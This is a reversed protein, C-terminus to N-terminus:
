HGYIERPITGNNYSDVYGDMMEISHVVYAETTQPIVPSSWGKKGHHSLIIHLLHDLDEQEIENIDNDQNYERAALLLKGYGIPIHHFMKAAKTEKWGGTVHVALM